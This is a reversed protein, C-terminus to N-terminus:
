KKRFMWTNQWGDGVRALVLQDETLKMITYFNGIAGDSSFDAGHLINANTIRLQMNSVNLDFFGKTENGNKVSKKFNQAMNLDFVMEGVEWGYAIVDNMSVKWWEPALSGASGNGFVAPQRDDWVWTKGDKGNTLLQWKPDKFYDEDNKSVTVKRKTSVYGGRDFASFVIDYEGAFRINVTDKQKNSIGAQYNWFPIIGSTKNELYIINDKEKNQTVSISIDSEPLVGGLQPNEPSCSMFMLLISLLSIMKVYIKKM